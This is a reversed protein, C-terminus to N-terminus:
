FQVPADAPAGEIQGLSILFDAFADHFAGFAPHFLLVQQCFQAPGLRLVLHVRFIIQDNKKKKELLLRCVLDSHSQLESTHEESRTSDPATLNESIPLFPTCLIARSAFPPSNMTRLPSCGTVRPGRGEASNMFFMGLCKRSSRGTNSSRNLFLLDSGFRSCSTAYASTSAQSFAPGEILLFKTFRNSVRDLSESNRRLSISFRRSCGSHSLTSNGSFYSCLPGLSGFLPCDPVCCYSSVTTLSITLNLMTNRAIKRTPRAM